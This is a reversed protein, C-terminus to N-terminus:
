QTVPRTLIELTCTTEACSKVSSVNILSLPVIYPQSNIMVACNFQGTENLQCNQNVWEQGTIYRTCEQAFCQWEPEGITANGPLPTTSKYTVAGTLSSGGFFGISSVASVVLAIVSVVLAVIAFTNTTM